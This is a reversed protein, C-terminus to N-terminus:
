LSFKSSLNPFSHFPRFDQMLDVFLYDEIHGEPLLYHSSPKLYSMDNNLGAFEANYIDVERDSHNITSDKKM